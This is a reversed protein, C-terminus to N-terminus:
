DHDSDRRKVLLAYLDPSDEEIAKMMVQADITRDRNFVALGDVLVYGIFYADNKDIMLRVHTPVVERSAWARVHGPFTELTADPYKEAIAKQQKLREEYDAIGERITYAM